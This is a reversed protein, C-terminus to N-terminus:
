RGPLEIIGTTIALLTMVFPLLIAVVGIIAIPDKFPNAGDVESKSRWYEEPEAERTLKKKEGEMIAKVATTNLSRGARAPRLSQRPLPAFSRSVSSAARLSGAAVSSGAMAMTAM